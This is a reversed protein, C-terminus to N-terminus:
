ALSRKLIDFEEREEDVFPVRKMSKEKTRHLAVPRV